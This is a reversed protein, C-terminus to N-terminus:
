SRKGTSLSSSRATESNARFGGEPAEGGLARAITTANHDIMGIYTGEWTGPPGMADSYLEGGIAVRRGRREAGEVIAAIRDAPVSSEVFIAPVRREVIFDVLRNIDDVGAASETSVGQVPRVPIGYARSFYGFADHATVLVRQREPITAIVARVYENLKELEACYAAANQRYEDAHDPDFRALVEAVYEVCRGWLSVDMWVHPDWYDEFSPLERLLSRDLGDTVAHVPKGQRALRAFDDAMRGELSLGVYFVLDADMLRRIDNRTPKYLHPDVGEGMLGTVVAREGAVTRAIDTVMGCTTVIQYPRDGDQALDETAARAGGAPFGRDTPGCGTSVLLVLAALGIAPLRVCVFSM